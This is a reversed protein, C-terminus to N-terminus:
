RVTKALGQHRCSIYGVPVNMFFPYTMAVIKVLCLLCLFVLFFEWRPLFSRPEPLMDDDPILGRSLALLFDERKRHLLQTTQIIQVHPTRLYPRAVMQSLTETAEEM